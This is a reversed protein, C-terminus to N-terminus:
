VVVENKVSNSLVIRVNMHFWFLVWIALAISLLFFFSFCFLFLFFVHFAEDLTNGVSLKVKLRYKHPIPSHPFM